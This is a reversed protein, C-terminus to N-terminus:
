IDCSDSHRKNSPPIPVTQPEERATSPHPRRSYDAAYSTWDGASARQWQVAVSIDIGLLRGLLAAPLEATLQFLASSRSQGPRLGIRRLREGLHFASIPRGPQGGPFLWPSSGREGIVAHGKRTAVLQLALDALPGPLVVPEPGLRLRVSDDNAVVDTLRLRSVTAPWQAYLLVVLGAFRDWPDVTGDGLLWRAQEWRAETDVVGSPGGWRVAPLELSTLKEKRAWRVFHGAEHRYSAQDSALWSDLDGQKATQLSLGKRALWELVVIAAKIHQRAVSAQNYTTARDKTRRRLRRLVHWTAYRQLLRQEETSPRDSITKAVWRELRSMHEDRAPLTGTAVLVARLHETRKSTPLADLVEHTLKERAGISRLAGPAGSKDLWAAVTAPREAVLADYLARHPPRVTGSSDGLLERLREDVSCRACRGAHIRGPRGCSTCASWFGPEPRACTACLPEDLTGDRVQALEGCRSCHAWRGACTKCWPQGTTESVRCRGYRGCIGCTLVKWPRCSECLVGEPHRLSVPRRRGCRSCAEHNAPDRVLCDPCIAGGKEDRTAPERVAGCRACAVARARALCNRCLRVGEWPKVLAVARGCRPCAPRVIARAGADCLKDILRLVSPVPAEAGAGTLLEPREALAWALQHRQGRQSAAATAATAVVEAGLAPELRRVVEVVVEIPDPREDPPCQSCRPRGEQDRMSVPRSRGCAACPERLPGCSGCYWDEGRRQLSGLRKGCSACVPASVNQAGTRRLAILLDGVVRPAPSRGDTLVGPREALAQALRRRKARGGGVSEVVGRLTALEITPEITGVLEVVVGVPDALVEPSPGPM